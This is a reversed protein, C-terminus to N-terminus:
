SALMTAKSCASDLTRGLDCVTQETRGLLPAVEKVKLDCDVRLV